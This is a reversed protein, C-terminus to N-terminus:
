ENFPIGMDCHVKSVLWQGNEKVLSIDLPEYEGRPIRLTAQEGEIRLISAPEQYYEIPTDQSCLYPDADYCPPKDGAPTTAWEAACAKWLRREREIFQKSVKGSRAFIDMKKDLIADDLAYFGDKAYYLVMNNAGLEHVGTTIYWNYFESVAGVLAASDVATTAHVSGATEKPANKCAAFALLIFLLVYLRM